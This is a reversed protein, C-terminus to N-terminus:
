DDHTLGQFHGSARLALRNHFDASLNALTVKAFSALLLAEADRLSSDLMANVSQEVACGPTESRNGIAFLPPSGIGEFIDLLTVAALDRALTWGGGHGKEAHVYGRERLGAMVRRIVVPNTRMVKGLMESTVPGEYEAMHLLVHLVGSLRSDRIM